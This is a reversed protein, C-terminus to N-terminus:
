FLLLISLIPGTLITYNFSKDVQKPMVTALAAFSGASNEFHWNYFQDDNGDFILVSDLIKKDIQPGNADTYLLSADMQNRLTKMDLELFVEGTVEGATRDLRQRTAGSANARELAALDVLHIKSKTERPLGDTFGAKVLTVTFIVHSRSPTDSVTLPTLKKLKKDDIKSKKDNPNPVQNRNPTQIQVRNQAMNRGSNCGFGRPAGMQAKDEAIVGYKEKFIMGSDYESSGVL